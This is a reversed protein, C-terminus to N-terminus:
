RALGSQWDAVAQIEEPTIGSNEVEAAARRLAVLEPVAIPQDFQMGCRQGAIWVIQGFAEIEGCMLVVDKGPAPLSEGELRAGNRSVELLGVRKRGDLTEISVPLHVPARPEVRRGREEAGDSRRAKRRDSQVADM